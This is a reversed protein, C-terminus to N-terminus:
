AAGAPPDLLHEEPPAALAELVRALQRDLRADVDGAPTELVCGGRPIRPDELVDLRDIGGMRRLIDGAGERVLDLDDPNVHVAIRERDTARRIAARVVEVVLEPRVSLEARVIRAATEVALGALDDALRGPVARLEDELAAALAEATAVAAAMRGHAEALGQAYGQERADALMLDREAEARALVALAEAEAAAALAEPGGAAALALPSPPDPLVLPLANGVV